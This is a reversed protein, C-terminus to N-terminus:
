LPSHQSESHAISRLLPSDVMTRDKNPTSMIDCAVVEIQSQGLDIHHHRFPVIEELKDKAGLLCSLTKHSIDKCPLINHGITGM